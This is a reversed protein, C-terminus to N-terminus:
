QNLEKLCQKFLDCPIFHFGYYIIYCVKHQEDIYLYPVGSDLSFRMLDKCIDNNKFQIIPKPQPTNKIVIKYGCGSSIILSILFLTRM